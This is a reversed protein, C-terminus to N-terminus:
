NRCFILNRNHKKNQEILAKMVEMPLMDMESSAEFLSIEGRRYRLLTQELEM